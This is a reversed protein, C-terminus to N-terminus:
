IENHLDDDDNICLLISDGVCLFSSYKFWLVIYTCVCIVYM